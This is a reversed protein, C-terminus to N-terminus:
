LINKIGHYLINDKVFNKINQGILEASWRILDDHWRNPHINLMIKDPLNTEKIAAIIEYTNNFRYNFKTNVKDKINGKDKDWTRGTDSLYMVENFNVSLYAEDIIGFDNFNYKDWLKRNNWKSLPSGHACITRIPFIKNFEGLEKKFLEIAKEYNGKAKALVEYHYGVEHGLDKIEKIIIKRFTKPYRFYYSASIGLKNEIRALTLAENIGRDIDHRLICVKRCKDRKLFECLNTIEYNNKQLSNYLEVLIKITFDRM